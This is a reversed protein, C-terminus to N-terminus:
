PWLAPRRAPQLRYTSGLRFPRTTTSSHLSSEGTTDVALASSTSSPRRQSRALVETRMSPVVSSGLNLLEGIRPSQPGRPPLPRSSPYFHTNIDRRRPKRKAFIAFGGGIAAPYCRHFAVNLMFWGLRSGSPSAYTGTSPLDLHLPAHSHVAACFSLGSRSGSKIRAPCAAGEAPILM